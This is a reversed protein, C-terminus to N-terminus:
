RLLINNLQFNFISFLTNFFFSSSRVMNHTARQIKNNSDSLEELALRVMSENKIECIHAQFKSKRDTLISGTIWKISKREVNKANDYSTNNDTFDIEQSGVSDAAFSGMTEEWTTTAIQCITLAAEEKNEFCEQSMERVASVTKEICSNPISTSSLRYSEIRIKDKTPYGLPIEMIIFCKPSSNPQRTSDIETPLNLQFRLPFLPILDDPSNDLNIADTDCLIDVEDPYAAQLIELDSVSREIDDYYDSDIM